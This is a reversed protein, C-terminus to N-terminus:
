LKSLTSNCRCKKNSLIYQKKYYENFQNYSFKKGNGFLSIENHLNNIWKILYYKSNLINNTIEHKKLYKSYHYRCKECPIIHELTTLFLKMNDKIVKTPYKPYAFIVSDIFFWCHKGWIRSNLNIM